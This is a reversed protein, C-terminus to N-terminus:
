YSGVYVVKLVTRRVPREGRTADASAKLASEVTAASAHSSLYPAGTGAEHPSAM